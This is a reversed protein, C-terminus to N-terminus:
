TFSLNIIYVNLNSKKGLKKKRLHRFNTLSVNLVNEHKGRSYSAEGTKIWKVQWQIYRRSVANMFISLPEVYARWRPYLGHDAMTGLRLQNFHIYLIDMTESIQLNFINFLQETQVYM